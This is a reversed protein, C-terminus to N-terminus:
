PTKIRRLEFFDEFTADEDILKRALRSTYNNNIKFPEGVTQTAVHWRVREIISKAGYRHRGTHRLEEAYRKFLSYIHPNQDLWEEFREQISLLRRDALPLTTQSM